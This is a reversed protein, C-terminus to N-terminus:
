GFFVPAGRRRGAGLNTPNLSIPRGYSMDLPVQDVATVSSFSMVGGNGSYDAPSVNDVMDFFMKCGAGPLPLYQMAQIQQLSFATDFIAITAFDAAPSGSVGARDGLVFNGGSDGVPTGSGINNTTYAMETAAASLTGLYVRPNDILGHVTWALFYWTSSLISSSTLILSDAGTLDMTLQLRHSSDKLIVKQPGKSWIIRVAAVLSNLKFWGMWTFTHVDNIASSAAVSIRQNTNDTTRWAM